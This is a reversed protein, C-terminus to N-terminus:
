DRTTSAEDVRRRIDSLNSMRQLGAPVSDFGGTYSWVYAITAFIAGVESDVDTVRALAFVVLGVAFVDVIGWSAAEADSLRNWHGALLRFHSRIEASDARDIVSVEIETQDNILRYVRRSRRVLRLNVLGVPVALAAAAFGVVPDYFFLMLLSGFVAFSAAIANVVERELFEVYEGALATRAVVSSTVVGDGRQQEVLDSALDTYLQNFSRTDFVQRGGSVAVHALSIVVLVVVGDWNDDLLGDVSLGIALPYMLEFINEVVVLSYTFALRGRNRRLHTATVSM